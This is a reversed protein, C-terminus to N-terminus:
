PLWKLSMAHSYFPIKMIVISFKHTQHAGPFCHSNCFHQQIFLHYVHMSIHNVLTDHVMQIENTNLGKSHVHFYSINQSLQTQVMGASARAGKTTKDDAAMINNHATPRSTPNPFTWQLVMVHCYRWLSPSPMESWWRRSQKSLQENLCLYFFIDSHWQGKHPSDVLSQHIGRVLPWYCPFHKRKIVDDHLITMKKEFNKVISVGNSTCDKMLEFESQHKAETLMVSYM